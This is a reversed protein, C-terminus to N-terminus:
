LNKLDHASYLSYIFEKTFNNFSLFASLLRLVPSLGSIKVIDVYHESWTLYSGKYYYLKLTYIFVLQEKCSYYNTFCNFIFIKVANSFMVKQLTMLLCTHWSRLLVVNSCNNM